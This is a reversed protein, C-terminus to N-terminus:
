LTRRAEAEEALLRLKGLDLASIQGWGEIGSAVAPRFSEYLGYAADELKEPTYAAALREMAERVRVLDEGFKGALYKRVPGPEIPKDGVVARVGAETSKARVPRGCITIRFEDDSVAAGPEEAARPKSPGYIGLSRGKAQANLGAVGEGLSLRTEPDHGRREAVVAAWLTLVPARNIAVLDDTM